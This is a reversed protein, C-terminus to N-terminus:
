KYKLQRYYYNRVEAENCSVGELKNFRETMLKSRQSYSNIIQSTENKYVEYSEDTPKPPRVLLDVAIQGQLPPCLSISALKTAQDIFDNEFNVFETYGGRRGCEGSFGKSISHLSVLQIDYNLDKIVKKFSVFPKNNNYINNQYVEDAVIVLNHENAFDCIERINDHSLVAGTPNGPNIIVLAKVNINNKRANSLSDELLKVNLNWGNNEDLDYSVINSGALALSASYLPYQPIPIMVGDNKGDLILQFLLSVGGSAGNTLFINEAEADYGDREKLFKAVQERIFPVGKSHSYAGISGINNLLESARSKVDGPFLNFSEKILEPYETLASVQRFFTLPKQNLGQQQPNGINCPLISKFNLISKNTSDSLSKSYEDAKTPIEGRVAYQAKVVNQNLSQNNFKRFKTITSRM